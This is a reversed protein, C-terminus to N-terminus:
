VRCCFEDIVVGCLPCSLYLRSSHFVSALCWSLLKIGWCQGVCGGVLKGVVGLCGQDLASHSGMCV